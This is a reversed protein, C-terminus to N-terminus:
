FQEESYTLNKFLNKNKLSFFAQQQNSFLLQIYGTSAIM